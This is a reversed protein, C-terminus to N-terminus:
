FHTGQRWFNFGSMGPAEGLLGPRFICLSTYVWLFFGPNCELQLGGVRVFNEPNM